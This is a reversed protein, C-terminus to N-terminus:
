IETKLNENPSVFPNYLHSVCASSLGNAKENSIGLPAFVEHAESATEPCALSARPDHHDHRPSSSLILVIVWPSKTLYPSQQHKQAMRLFNGTALMSSLASPLTWARGKSGPKHRQTSRLNCCGEDWPESYPSFHQIKEKCKIFLCFVACWFDQGSRVEGLQSIVLWNNHQIAENEHAHQRFHFTVTSCIIVKLLLSISSKMLVWSSPTSLKRFREPVWLLIPFYCYKNLRWWMISKRQGWIIIMLYNTTILNKKKYFVHLMFTASGNQTWNLPTLCMNMAPCGDMEPVRKITCPQLEVDVICYSGMRGEGRDRAIVMRSATERIQVVRLVEHLHFSWYRTKRVPKNCKVHHGWSGGMNAYTLSCKRKLNM